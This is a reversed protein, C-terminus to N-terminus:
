TLNLNFNMMLLSALIVVVLLFLFLKVGGRKFFPLPAPYKYRSMSKLEAGVRDNESVDVEYDSMDVGLFQAYNRVYGREFPSMTALDISENELKKLQPLRLNLHESVEDLTLDKETRAQVFRENLPQESTDVETESM